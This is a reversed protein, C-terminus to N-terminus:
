FMRLLKQPLRSDITACAYGPLLNPAYGGKIIGVNHTINLLTHTEGIGSIPESIDKAKLIHDTVIRPCTSVLKESASKYRSIAEILIDIANVTKHTHAGYGEVGYSEILFRYRGKEGFRIM